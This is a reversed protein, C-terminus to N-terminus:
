RHHRPQGFTRPELLDLGTATSGLFSERRPAGVFVGVAQLVPETEGAEVIRVAGCDACHERRIGAGVGTSKAYDHNGRRCDDQGAM